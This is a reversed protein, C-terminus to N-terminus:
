IIKNQNIEHMANIGNDRNAICLEQVKSMPMNFEGTFKINTGGFFGNFYKSILEASPNDIKIKVDTRGERLIADDINEIHNTTFILILGRKYLVGDMCNIFTSFSVKTEADRKDDKTNEKGENKSFLKDIDEILLISNPKLRKLLFYLQNDSTVNNVNMYYIDRRTHKALALSLSTKGNGPDGFLIYNRKYPINMGEYWDNSEAFRDMDRILYSKIGDDVIVQDITKVKLVNLEDWSWDTNSYIKVVDKNVLNKNFELIEMMMATIQKRARWGIISYFGIYGGKADKSQELKERDKKIFIIKGQYRIFIKGKEHKLTFENVDTKREEKGNEETIASISVSKYSEPYKSSIWNEVMEYFPDYNYVSAHFMYHEYILDYLKKPYSKLQVAITTGIGALFLDLANINM